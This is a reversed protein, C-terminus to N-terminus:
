AAAWMTRWMTAIRLHDPHRVTGALQTFTGALDRAADHAGVVFLPHIRARAGQLVLDPDGTQQGIAIVESGIDLHDDVDDPGDLALM